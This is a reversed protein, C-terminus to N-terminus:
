DDLIGAGPHGLRQPLRDELREALPGPGGRVRWANPDPQRQHAHEGLEVAAPGPDLIAALAGAGRELDVQWVRAGAVGNASGATAARRLLEALHLVPGGAPHEPDPLPSRNVGDKYSKRVLVVLAFAPYCLPRSDMESLVAMAPPRWSPHSDPRGPWARSEKTHCLGNTV